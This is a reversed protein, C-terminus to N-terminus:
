STVEDFLSVVTDRMPRPMYNAKVLGIELNPVHPSHNGLDSATGCPYRKISADKHGQECRALLMSLLLRETESHIDAMQRALAVQKEPEGEVKEVIHRLRDQLVKLQELLSCDM